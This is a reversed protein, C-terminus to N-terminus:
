LTSCDTDSRRVKGGGDALPAPCILSNNPYDMHIRQDHDPNPSDGAEPGRKSWVHQMDVHALRNTAQPFHVCAFGAQSMASPSVSQTLRLSLPPVGLLQAAAGLLRPHVTVTNAAASATAPFALGDADIEKPPLSFHVFADRRAADTLARPLLGPQLVVIGSSRWAAIQATTLPENSSGEDTAATTPLWRM